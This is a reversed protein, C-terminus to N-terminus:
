IPRKPLLSAYSQTLWLANFSLLAKDLRAGYFKQYFCSMYEDSQQSFLETTGIWLLVFLLTPYLINRLKQILNLYNERFHTLLGQLSNCLQVETKLSRITVFNTLLEM